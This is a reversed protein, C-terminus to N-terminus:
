KCVKYPYIHELDCYVLYVKIVNIVNMHSHSLLPIDALTYGVQWPFPPRTFPFLSNSNQHYFLPVFCCPLVPPSYFIHPYKWVGYFCHDQWFSILFRTPIMTKLLKCYKSQLCIFIRSIIGKISLFVLM